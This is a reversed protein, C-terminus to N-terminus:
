AGAQRLSIGRSPHVLLSELLAQSVGGGTDRDDVFLTQVKRLEAQLGALKVKDTLLRTIIPRVLHFEDPNINVSFKTYDMRLFHEYPQDYGRFFTVPICGFVISRAMRLTAQTIGPPCVCFISNMMDAHTQDVSAWGQVTGPIPDLKADNLLATRLTGYDGRGGEVFRYLMSINRQQSEPAVVDSVTLRTDFGVPIIIDRGPRYCFWSNTDSDRRFHDGCIQVTFLDGMDQQKLGRMAYCRGGDLPAGM